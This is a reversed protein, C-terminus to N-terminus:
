ISRHALQSRRKQKNALRPNTKESARKLLYSVRHLRRTGARISLSGIYLGTLGASMWLEITAFVFTGATPLFPRLTLMLPPGILAFLRVTDIGREWLKLQFELRQHRAFIVATSGVHLSALIEQEQNFEEELQDALEGAPDRFIGICQYVDIAITLLWMAIVILASGYATLQIGNGRAWGVKALLLLVVIVVIALGIVWWIAARLKSFKDQRRKEPSSKLADSLRRYTIEDNRM